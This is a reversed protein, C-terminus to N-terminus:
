GEARAAAEREARVVSIPKGGIGYQHPEMENVMVRVTELPADLSDAIAHSVAKIMDEIKEKPRGEMMNINVLPM